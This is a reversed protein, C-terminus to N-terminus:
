DSFVKLLTQFCDRCVVKSPYEMGYSQVALRAPDSGPFRGHSSDERIHAAPSKIEASSRVVHCLSCRTTQRNDSM